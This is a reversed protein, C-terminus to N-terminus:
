NTNKLTIMVKCRGAGDISSILDETKSELTLIYSSYTDDNQHSQKTKSPASPIVESLLILIIGAVGLIAFLRIRKDSASLRNMLRAAYEKIKIEM